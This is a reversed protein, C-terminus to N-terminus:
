ELRVRQPINPIAWLSACERRSAQQSYQGSHGSQIEQSLVLLAGANWLASTILALFVLVAPPKSVVELLSGPVLFGAPQQGVRLVARTQPDFLIKDKWCLLWV